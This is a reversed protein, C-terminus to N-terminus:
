NEIYLVSELAYGELELRGNMVYIKNEERKYKVGDTKLKEEVVDLDSLHMEILKKEHEDIEKKIIIPHKKGWIVKNDIIEFPYECGWYHVKLNKVSKRPTTHRDILYNEVEEKSKFHHIDPKLNFLISEKKHRVEWLDFKVAETNSSPRKFRIIQGKFLITANLLKLEDDLGSYNGRLTKELNLLSNYSRLIWRRRVDEETFILKVDVERYLLLDDSIFKIDEKISYLGDLWYLKGLDPMQPNCNNLRKDVWKNMKDKNGKYKVAAITSFIEKATTEYM